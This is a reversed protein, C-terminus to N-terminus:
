TPAAHNKQRELYERLKAAARIRDDVTLATKHRCPTVLNRHRIYLAFAIVNQRM